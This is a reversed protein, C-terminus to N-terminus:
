TFQFQFLKDLGGLIEESIGKFANQTKEEDLLPKQREDLFYKKEEPDNRQLYRLLHNADSALDEFKIVYDYNVM